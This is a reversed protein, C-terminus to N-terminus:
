RVIAGILSHPQVAEFYKELKFGDTVKYLVLLWQWGV